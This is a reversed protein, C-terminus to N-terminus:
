LDSTPLHIHKEKVRRYKNETLITLCYQLHKLIQDTYNLIFGILFKCLKCQHNIFIDNSQDVLM